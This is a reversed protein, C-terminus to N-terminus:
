FSYTIKRRVTQKEPTAVHGILRRCLLEFTCTRLVTVQRHFQDAPRFSGCYTSAFPATTAFLIDCVTCGNIRHTAEPMGHMHIACDANTFAFFIFSWHQEVTLNDAVSNTVFDIDCYILIIAVAQSSCP